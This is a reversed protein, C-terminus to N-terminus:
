AADTLDRDAAITEATRHLLHMGPGAIWVVGPKGLNMDWSPYQPTGQGVFTSAVEVGVAIDPIGQSRGPALIAEQKAALLSAWRNCCLEYALLDFDPGHEFIATMAPDPAVFDDDIVDWAEHIIQFAKQVNRGGVCEFLLQHFLSGWLLLRCRELSTLM